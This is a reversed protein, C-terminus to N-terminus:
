SESTNCSTGFKHLPQYSLGSGSRRQIMGSDDGYVFHDPRLIRQRDHHLADLADSHPVQAARWVGYRLNGPLPALNGFRQRSGVAATHHM